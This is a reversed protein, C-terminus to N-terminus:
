QESILDLFSGQVSQKTKLRKFIKRETPTGSLCAIVTARKQGPRRVRGNAQEFTENSDIPAFWVVTTAATLTLGHSMTAPQAVIVRLTRGKQFEGFIRDRDSKKVAGNIIEVSDDSGLTKRVHEAVYNLAGTFPVFVLVKGESEEILEDLVKLRETAPIVVEEGQTGYAVGCNHVILPHGDDGLVTFRQRPGCSVLDYVSVRGPGRRRDLRVQAAQRVANRAQHRVAGRSRGSDDAGEAHRHHPQYAQQTRAARSDGVSLEGALVTRRQRHAGLDYWDPSPWCRGCIGRVLWGVARVSCDWAWWLAGLRPQEREYVAAAYRELHPVVCHADAQTDRQRPPVRLEEPTTPAEDALVPEHAGRHERLRVSVGLDGSQQSHGSFRGTEYGDPLWVAARDFGKSADGHLVEQAERWGDTTLVRHEPTMRVGYCNVVERVGKHMLGGHEVWEVGDWVADAILVDEIPVWGRRTLVPTGKAICAIQVLKAIKVAENVALIKGGHYEAKLTELMARYADDQAKTLPASREVFVQEPLDTCEDLTFRISPQMSQQVVDLAEDRPLWRFPGVQRMVSDKFRGFYRPVTSPTLLRCQAWADTPANPIPTGTLGWVMRPHQKNCISDAAAWIDTRANRAVALEDYIVLDIDPRDALLPEVIKLGHHNVVYIDAPQNLLRKRREASGHLVVANLHLFNRFVEDGWTRELTSLPAVVLAKHALGVSRCYDYAWLASLTKGTNGTCFVCGNRRLVLFTSPVMFCYKHGDTAPERWVTTGQGRATNSCLLLDRKPKRRVHVVYETETAGRRQRVSAHLRAVYGLGSFAYQVFDASPKEYSSFRIGRRVNDPISSDWHPVEDVIVELQARTAQWFEADFVKVRRPACFCFVSYGQATACDQDRETFEISAAALLSRMRVKKREKKLRVVCRRTDNPFHGDAIVAVQVRIEADTLAIGTGGSTHFSAPVGMQKFGVRTTSKRLRIGAKAADHRLLVEEAPLVEYKDPNDAGHVLVRHERSLLQDVGYKTKIRIMDDCPLKVFETPEVFESTGTEPWYQAVLGGSYEAIPKWGAPSLYETGSDVCGLGNLCYARTHRSLFDATEIQAAFPAHQGPWDYYYRIPSPADIGLNQLVKVEDRRHPVATVTKGNMVLVKATPIVSTIRIPDRVNLLLARYKKLVLM